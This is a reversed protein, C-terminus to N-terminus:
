AYFDFDGEILMKYLKDITNNYMEKTNACNEGMLDFIFGNSSDRTVTRCILFDILATLREKIVLLEMVTDINSSYSYVIYNEDNLSLRDILQELIEEIHLLRAFQTRKEEEFMAKEARKKERAMRREEIHKLDIKTPELDCHLNFDSCIKYLANKFSLQFMMQVLKIIDGGDGCSFCHWSNNKVSINHNSEALNFPCKFRGNSAPRGLYYEWMGLETANDKIENVDIM